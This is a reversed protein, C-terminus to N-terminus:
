CVPEDFLIEFQLKFPNSIGNTFNRLWKSGRGLAAGMGILGGNPAEPGCTSIKGGGAIQQGNQIFKQTISTLRGGSAQFQTVVRFPKRTDVTNGPGYFNRQGSLYPNWGCGGKNCSNGQCPHGTMVTAMSNAEIIDMENCCYGQCQADCYGSGTRANSKGEPKMESLFFAGNEGCPVDSYDVDVSIEQGLLKMMVFKGDDGLLYVRPSANNLKGGSKVYHSLSLSSGSTSVGMAAYDAATRSGPAGRAFGSSSDLVISTTQKVCGGSTTCKWTPLLPHQEQAIALGALLWTVLSISSVKFDM